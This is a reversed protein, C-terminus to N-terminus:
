PRCPYWWVAQLTRSPNQDSLTRCCPQCDHKIRTLPSDMVRTQCTHQIQHEIELSIRKRSPNGFNPPSVVFYTRLCHTELPASTRISVTQLNEEGPRADDDPNWSSPRSGYLGLFQSNRCIPPKWFQHQHSPPSIAQTILLIKQSYPHARTRPDKNLSEPNM